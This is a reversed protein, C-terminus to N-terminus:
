PSRFRRRIEEQEQPSLQDWMELDRRLKRQDEPSLRRWQEYRRDFLQREQPSLKKYRDMRRRLESREEPSLSEWEQHKRKLKSRAQFYFKQYRRSPMELREQEGATRPSRQETGPHIWRTSEHNIAEWTRWILVKHSQLGETVGPMADIGKSLHPVSAFCSTTVAFTLALFALAPGLCEIAKHIGNVM